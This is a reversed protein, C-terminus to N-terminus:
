QILDAINVGLERDANTIEADDLDGRVGSLYGSVGTLDGYVGTLDGSVGTLDGYVGTLDGRVGTLDGRVGSLYGSVGTLDGRVGSLDGCVCPSIKYIKVGREFYWIALHVPATDATTQTLCKKV